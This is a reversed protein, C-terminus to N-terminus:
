TSMLIPFITNTNARSHISNENKKLHAGEKSICINKNQREAAREELLPPRRADELHLEIAMRLLGQSEPLTPAFPDAQTLDARAEDSM